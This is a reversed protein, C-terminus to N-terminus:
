VSVTWVRYRFLGFWAELQTDPLSPSGGAVRRMWRMRQLEPDPLILRVNHLTRDLERQIASIIGSGRKNTWVEFDYYEQDENWSPFFGNSADLTCERFTVQEYIAPTELKHAYYIAPQGSEQTALLAALNSNGRLATLIAQNVAASM